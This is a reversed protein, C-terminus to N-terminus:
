ARRRLLGALTGAIVRGTAPKPIIPCTPWEARVPDNEIQGTYFAFPIGRRDLARAVPAVDASGVRIDLIAAGFEGDAEIRELAQAVTGCLSVEAAGAELLTYELEMLVIFEDEVVLVRAGKLLQAADYLAPVDEGDRPEAFLARLAGVRGASAGLEIIAPDSGGTRRDGQDGQGQNAM